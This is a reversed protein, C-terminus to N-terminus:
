RGVQEQNPLAEIVQAWLSRHADTEETNHAAQYRILKM